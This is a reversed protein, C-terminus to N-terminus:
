ASAELEHETRSIIDEQISKSLQIFYTSYGAVRVVLDRHAEPRFQADILTDKSVVNFQVHKGGNTFYTRILMSLKRLDETTKLSSPHIKMNMLTSSFPIQDIQMASRLLATPGHTDRGQAASVTGDALNEGSFRGDPTAGTIAGGPGHATISVGSPKMTGGFSTTFSGLTEAWFRFLDKAISDVYLDGNGYKPAQSFIKRMESFGNGKWNAALAEKLAKKTFKKEEFVLKKLAALSDVTNIMGVPNLSSGNEFPMTRDLVDRGVIISDGMLSSQFADPTTEAQAILLINQFEAALSLFHTFQTKFANMFDEFTEFREFEGTKPGLQKGTRPEIGNNMTIELVKPAVFMSIANIRSKGPINVDLCGALAYNRADSIPVGQGTLYGIYSRDGVFAPMGIGTKVVELAKLMLAEPTGEHVRLTITHHPTRCRNAAELILYSLDNTADEGESTVGGIILNNWRAAGSWKERQIKGGLFFNLEMVKIRLNLLLELAEEETIKGAEMDKKYFPYMYQDFRGFSATGAQPGGVLVAWLFWCSQIAEHFTKAPNEPVSRCIRAIELLEKKREPDAEKQSVEEALDGFRKAIRIVAEHSIIVARLFDSKKIADASTFRLNRLETEADEIIGKLGKNLVTEYNVVNLCFGLGLGWGGGASGYGLGEYRNTIPPLMIGSQLFPWLREDDYLQGAREFFLRGKGKWFEDMSRLFNEEEESIVLGSKNLQEMEDKPWTPADAELGMPKSALNGVILEEDQIFITRNDLYHAFAKARRVILPEGDTQKLSDTILQVKEVCLPYTEPNIKKMLKEIRKNMIIEKKYRKKHGYAM